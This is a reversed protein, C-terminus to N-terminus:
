IKRPYNKLNLHYYVYWFNKGYFINSSTLNRDFKKSIKFLDKESYYNKIIRFEEGNELTRLKYTNKNFPIKILKGGYKENFVNDMMFILAGKKFIRHFEEFFYTLKEKPIHSLLFGVFGANYYNNKFTLNYANEKRFIIPCFYHKKKAIEIMEKLIDSTIISCAVKSLKQTWYGTGCALEIVEKNKFLKLINDEIIEQEKLREPDKINYIKEYYNARKRYYQRLNDM